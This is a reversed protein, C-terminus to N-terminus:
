QDKRKSTDLLGDAQIYGSDSGGSSHIISDRVEFVESQREKSRYSVYMIVIIVLLSFISFLIGNTLKM